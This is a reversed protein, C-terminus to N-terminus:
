IPEVFHDRADSQHIPIILSFTAFDIAVSIFQYFEKSQRKGCPRCGMSGGRERKKEMVIEAVQEIVNDARYRSCM